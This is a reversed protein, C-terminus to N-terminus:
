TSIVPIITKLHKMCCGTHGLRGSFIRGPLCDDRITLDSLEKTDMERVAFLMDVVSRVTPEKILYPHPIDASEGFGPYDPIVVVYGMSAIM